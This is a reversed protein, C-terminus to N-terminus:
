NGFRPFKVEMWMFEKAENPCTVTRESIITYYLLGVASMTQQFLVTQKLKPTKCVASLM